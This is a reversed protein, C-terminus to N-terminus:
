EAQADGPGADASATAVDDLPGADALPRGGRLVVRVYFHACTANYLFVQGPKLQSFEVANGSGETYSADGGPNANDSLYAHMEVIPRQETAWRPVVLTYGFNPGFELWAERIATSEWTDESLLHGQPNAPDNGYNTVPGPDCARDFCATSALSGLVAGLAVILAAAASLASRHV